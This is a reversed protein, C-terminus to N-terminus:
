SISYASFERRTRLGSKQSRVELFNHGIEAIKTKKKCQTKREVSEKRSQDSGRLPLM